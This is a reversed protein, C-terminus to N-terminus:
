TAGAAGTSRADDVFPLLWGEIVALDRLALRSVVPITIGSISAIMAATQEYQKKFKEVAVSAELDPEHLTITAIPATNTPLPRILGFTAEGTADDASVLTAKTNRLTGVWREVARLDRLKLKRAVAPPISSLQTILSISFETSTPEKEAKIMHLLQPEELTMETWTQGQHVIPRVLTFTETLVPTEPADTTDSKTKAM